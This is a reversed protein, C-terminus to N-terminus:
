PAAPPGTVFETATTFLDKAVQPGVTVTAVLLVALVAAMALVKNRM